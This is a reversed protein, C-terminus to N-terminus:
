SGWLDRGAGVHSQPVGQGGRPRIAQPHLHPAQAGRTWWGAM